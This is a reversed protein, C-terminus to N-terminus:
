AHQENKCGRRYQYYDFFKGRRTKREVVSVPLIEAQNKFHRPFYFGDKKHMITIVILIQISLSIRLKSFLQSLHIEKQAAAFQM